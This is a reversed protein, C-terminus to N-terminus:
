KRIIQANKFVKEKKLKNIFYESNIVMSSIVIKIRGVYIHYVSYANNYIVIKKINSYTFKKTILLINRYSFENDEVVIKWCSTYFIVGISM